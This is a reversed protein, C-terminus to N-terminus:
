RAMRRSLGSFIRPTCLRALVKAKTDRKGINTGVVHMSDIM